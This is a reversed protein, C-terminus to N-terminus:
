LVGFNGAWTVGLRSGLDTLFVQRSEEEVPLEVVVHANTNKGWARSVFAAQWTTLSELGEKEKHQFYELYQLM